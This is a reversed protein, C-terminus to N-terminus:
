AAQAVPVGAQNHAITPPGVTLLAHRWLHARQAEVEVLHPAVARTQPARPLAGALREWLLAVATEGLQWNGKDVTVVPLTRELDGADMMQWYNDYGALLVDRNPESGMRRLAAAVFPVHGDTDVLLADVGAGGERLASEFQAAASEFQARDAHGRVPVILPAAAELGAERMARAYGAMRAPFWYGSAPASWVQAIRTRGRGLLWRTLAYAGAEHDSVARDCGKFAAHGGIAVVPVRIKAFGTLLRHLHDEEGIMDSIVLGSLNRAALREVAGPGVVEDLFGDRQLSLVHQGGAHIASAAGDEIAHTWGDARANSGSRLPAVSLLAVTDSTPGPAGQKPSAIFTGVRPVTYLVGADALRQLEDNVARKSLGHRAALERVSPLPAGPALGGDRHGRLEDSLGAKSHAIEQRTAM